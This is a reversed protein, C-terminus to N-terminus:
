IKSIHKRNEICISVVNEDRVMSLMDIIGTVSFVSLMLSICIVMFGWIKKFLRHQELSINAVPKNKKNKKVKRKYKRSFSSLDNSQKKNKKM